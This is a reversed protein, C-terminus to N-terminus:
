PRSQTAFNVRAIGALRAAEMVRVVSEHTTQADANIILVADERGNAAARLAQAMDQASVGSLLQGNLAYIGQQSIAVNLAEEQQAEAQAEPLALRLQSYRTFSTTAALFILIVLLVDILPILNIELEDDAQGRRFNM